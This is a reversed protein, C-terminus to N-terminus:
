ELTRVYYRFKWLKQKNKAVFQRYRNDWKDCWTGKEYNSMKLIYNSSSIYPRRMTGGGSAFFVMEYVNQHMVWEYSDCSFEMFWRFGEKPHIRELNMFNGIIMLRRIHHLYGSQFGDKIADDVPPVGTTGKYWKDTLKKQNGFYNKNFDFYHYCYYQYERWFLQRIFGEYSNIPIKKQLRSIKSIIDGPCLLGINILASLMSHYMYADGTNTFDQYPGFLKFKYKIFHDLWKEAGEHTVPFIFGDTIGYNNRWHKNVYDTAEKIYVDDDVHDFPQPIPKNATATMRQRNDKDQSKINPIIGLQKKSWMYFANFFFKDTKKHYRDCLDKTLLISPSDIIQVRPPLGLIQTKNLPNFMIYEQHQDPEQTFDLYTVKANHATLYKHYHKMSARHLMLKKKNYKYAKFFHPCEWLVYHYSKDLYKINFLQNPLLLFIM